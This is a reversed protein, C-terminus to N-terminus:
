TDSKFAKQYSSTAPVDITAAPAKKHSSTADNITDQSGPSSHSITPLDIAPYFMIGMEACYKTIQVGTMEGNLWAQLNSMVDNM